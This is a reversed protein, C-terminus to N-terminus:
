RHDPGRKQHRQPNDVFPAPAQVICLSSAHKSQEPPERDRGVCIDLFFGSAAAGSVLIAFWSFYFGLVFGLIASGALLVFTANM